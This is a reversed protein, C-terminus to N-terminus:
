PTAEQYLICGHGVMVGTDRGDQVVGVPLLEFTQDAPAPCRLGQGQAAAYHQGARRAISSYRCTYLSSGFGDMQVLDASSM